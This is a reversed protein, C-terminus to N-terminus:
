RRATPRASERGRQADFEYVPLLEVATVGLAKLYPIKEVLGAFTGPHEVGSTPSKTFGGVHMEYIITEAMPRNLPEDGEWDYDTSTSSSAACRRDGPQRGPRLGRRPGLAHDHHRPRVPRDAGQEPQLPPRAGHPDRPGDVRYAYHMGPRCGACTARALLPVDQQLRPDLAITQIPEADDHEDFLLLEIATAHESFFSFNVGDADATAGLPHPAGPSSPTARSSSRRPRATDVPGRTQDVQRPKPATELSRM